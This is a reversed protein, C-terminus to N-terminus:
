YAFGLISAPGQFNCFLLRTLRASRFDICLIKLQCNYSRFGEKLAIYSSSAVFSSSALKWASQARESLSSM